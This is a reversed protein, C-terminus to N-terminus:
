SIIVQPYIQIFSSRDTLSLYRETLTQTPKKKHFFYRVDITPVITFDSTKFTIGGSVMKSRALLNLTDFPGCALFVADSKIEFTGSRSAVQSITLNDEHRILEVKSEPNFKFESYSKLKEITHRSSWISDKPCGIVCLSNGVCAREGDTYIALPMQHITSDYQHKYIPSSLPLQLMRILENVSNDFEFNSYPLGIDNPDLSLMTAGWINSLGGVSLSLQGQIESFISFRNSLPESIQEGLVRKLTNTQLSNYKGENNLMELRSSNDFKSRRISIESRLDAQSEFMTVRFGDELLSHAASVGAPGSGVIVIHSSKTNM